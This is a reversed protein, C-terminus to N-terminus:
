DAVSIFRGRLDRLRGNADTTFAAVGRQAQTSADSIHLLRRAAAAMRSGMSDASDGASSFRSQLTRLRTGADDAMSRVATSSRQSMDALRRHLRDSSDGARNLVRSLRDEGDLIFRMRDSM